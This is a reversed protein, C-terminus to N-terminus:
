LVNNIICNLKYSLHIPNKYFLHHYRVKFWYMKLTRNMFLSREYTLTTRFAYAWPGVLLEVMFSGFAIGLFTLMELGPKGVDGNAQAALIGMLMLLAMLPVSMLFM